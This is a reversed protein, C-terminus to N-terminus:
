RSEVTPARGPTDGAQVQVSSAQFAAGMPQCRGGLHEALFDEVFAYFSLRNERQVFGHGEDPYVLYTVPVNRRQLGAVLQDTDARRTHPDREGQGILLPRSIRDAYTLPSRALLQQRGEESGIDGVLKSLPRRLGKWQPPPNELLTVLQTPGVIDVGCAFTEPALAVGMLSAYGGYDGGMIAIRREDAIGELVAYRVADILDEHMKGGWERDAAAMFEKGFGTSGRFNVSLVAYGRNALLQHVPHVGWVDRAWPGGHVYLVLPLPREPRGNGDADSDLPLTLYSVLPRDDRSRITFSQMAALPLDVWQTHSVFLPRIARPRRNFLYFQTPRHDSVAAVTWLSDDLSRSLVEVQGDAVEHLYALDDDVDAALTRWKRRGTDFTVAEVRKETPHLLLGSVDARANAALVHTTGTELDISRAASTNRDGSDIVFLTEGSRDFGIIGSIEADAPALNWFESWGEPADEDARLFTRGGEPTDSEILRVRYDDDMYAQSFGTNERELRHAGTVLNIRHIDFLNSTPRDNLGVLIEAPFRESMALVRASAEALPTLDRVEGTDGSACILHPHGSAADTRFYLLHRSTFAWFYDSIGPKSERTWAKAQSLDDVPAVVINRAGDRLGVFALWKGDPSVRPLEREAAAFFLQRPILEVEPTPPLYTADGSPHPSRIQGPGLPDVEMPPERRALRPESLLPALDSSSTDGAPELPSRGLVPLGRTPPTVPSPPLDTSSDDPLAPGDAFNLAGEPGRDADSLITVPTAPSAVPLASNAFEPPLQATGARGDASFTPVAPPSRESTQNGLPATTSPLCGMTSIAALVFASVLSLSRTIM